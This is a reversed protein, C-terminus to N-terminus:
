LIRIHWYNEMINEYESSSSNLLICVSIAVTMLSDQAWSHGALGLEFITFKPKRSTSVKVFVDQIMM